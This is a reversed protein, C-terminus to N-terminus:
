ICALVEDNNITSILLIANIPSQTMQSYPLPLPLNQCPSLKVAKSKLPSETTDAGTNTEMALVEFVGEFVHLIWGM